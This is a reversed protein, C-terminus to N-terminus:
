VSHDIHWCSVFCIQTHPHPPHTLDSFILMWKPVPLSQLQNPTNSFAAHFEQRKLLAKFVPTPNWETPWFPLGIRTSNALPFAPPFSNMNFVCTGWLWLLSDLLIPCLAKASTLWLFQFPLKLDSKHFTQQSIMFLMQSRSTFFSHDSNVSHM